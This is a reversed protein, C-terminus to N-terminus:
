EEAMLRIQDVYFKGQGGPQRAQGNKPTDGVGIALQKIQTLNVGQNEFDSLPVRWETWEDVVLANPDDPHVIVVRHNQTDQVAVYLHDPDNYSLGIHTLTDLMVESSGNVQLNSFEARCPTQGDVYSNVVLGVQVESPMDIYVMSGLSRWNEADASHEATFDNGQRTLRLWHPVSVEKSIGTSHTDFGTRQRYLYESRNRPTVVAAMHRADDAMNERIMIGARAWEATDEVSEVKVTISIDGQMPMSVFTCEDAWDWIDGGTGIVSYHGDLLEFSSPPLATGLYHMCLYAMANQGNTTWDMPVDFTRQTESYYAGFSNDYELPLSFGGEYVYDLSGLFGGHEEYLEGVTMGTENGNAMVNGDEDTYEYRDRWTEFIRSGRFTTYSEMDDIMLTGLTSFSWIPGLWPSDPHTDNIEIVRWYYTTAWNLSTLEIQNSTANGLFADPQQTAVAEKNESLYVNHSASNLGPLWELTPNNQSLESENGPHVSVALNPNDDGSLGNIMVQRIQPETLATDYFGIDDLWGIFPPYYQSLYFDPPSDGVFIGVQSNKIAGSDDWGLTYQHIGDVYVHSGQVANYTAAIHHWMGDEIDITRNVIYPYMMRSQGNVTEVNWWYTSKSPRIVAFSHWSPDAWLNPGFGQGVVYNWAPCKPDVKIWFCLSLGQSLNLDAQECFAYGTGALRLVPGRQPDYIIEADEYLTLDYEGYVDNGTDTFDYGTVPLPPHNVDESFLSSTFVLIGTLICFFLTMPVNLRIM